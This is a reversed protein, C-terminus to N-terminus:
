QDAISKDLSGFQWIEDSPALGYQAIVSDGSAVGAFDDLTLTFVVTHLDGDVYGSLFFPNGGIFLVLVEDRVPFGDDSYLQIEIGPEGGLVDSSDVHRISVITGQHVVGTGFSFSGDGFQGDLDIYAIVGPGGFGFTINSVPSNPPMIVQFSATVNNLVGDHSIVQGGQFIDSRTFQVGLLTFDFSNLLVYSDGKPSVQSFDYSFSVAFSTGALSGTNLTADLESTVLGSQASAASTVLLFLTATSGKM